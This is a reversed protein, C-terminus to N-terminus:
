LGTEGTQRHTVDKETLLSLLHLLFAFLLTLSPLPVKSILIILLLIKKHNFFILLIQYIFVYITDSFLLLLLELLFDFFGMDDALTKMKIFQLASFQSPRYPKLLHIDM